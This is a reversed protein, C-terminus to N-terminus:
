QTITLNKEVLLHSNFYVQITYKGPIGPIAPIDLTCYHSRNNWLKDWTASTVSLLDLLVNGKDDRIVFMVEYTEDSEQARVPSYIVMSVKSGPAYKSTYDNKGIDKYTWNSKKPTPCLSASVDKKEIALEDLPDTDVCDYQFQGKFVTSGDAAQISFNYTVGPIRPDIVAKAESCPIVSPHDNGDISYMLLWGGEPVSGAYEWSINLIFDDDPADVHTKTVTTPNASVFTRANRTMGAATVEVTYAKDPLIGQFSVSTETTTLTEDYGADTYCRVTWSEVQSDQPASWQATLSGEACGTIALNEAIIIQSSTFELTSNGVIWLDEAPAVLNFTYIKGVTLDNITVNHGTFSVSKSEEGETAYEVMWDQAQRGEIDFSLVVSGDENGTKATFNVIKTQEATTFSCPEAGTLAHFGDADVTIKYTTAPTLGIFEASGNVLPMTMTNGYADTCVVRLLTEDVQTDLFVTITDEEGRIEMRDIPLLYYNNYFRIGGYICVAAVLSLILGTIWRKKRKPNPKAVYWDEEEDEDEAASPSAPTESAEIPQEEAAPEEQVEPEATVVIPEPIKLEPAAPVVVEDPLQRALLEDAQALMDNVEQTMAGEVRDDGSLANPATEDATMHNLFKLDEHSEEQSEPLNDTEDPQIGGKVGPPVIPEDMVQNRQMYSVLAQGMEIPTQWRKRPSPDIAKQIIEALEYDANIPSPLATAPAKTDFPLQGDNYIQYLIMGVAYIDATPNLTAMDDHLEPPTYPSRYKSPMATFKMNDLPAFGLDGIRYERKGAIFVNTPKLDVFMYGARRCISLAACLDLGLNVASLHTMLQSKVHKDLATRYRSLLYVEYGLQNNKMPAVQWNEYPLFGQLKSLEKLIEAEKVVGESLEKFYEMASAADPYAGTLLLADLKQQSSPISIIKVIYKDDSDERMAPCCRVGNHESIPDGMMFGDLLPSILKKDSL